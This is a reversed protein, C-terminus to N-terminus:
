DCQTGYVAVMQLIDNADVVGDNTLDAPCPDFGICAGLANDWVTGEGCLQAGLAELQDCIGNNNADQQCNGDCDFVATAFFCSNDNVTAQANYNCAGEFTCGPVDLEDCIGNGNADNLCNGACDLNPEPYVCEEAVAEFNCAEPDLCDTITPQGAYLTTIEEPTLARNYIAIDDLVGNLYRQEPSNCSGCGGSAAGVIWSECAGFVM